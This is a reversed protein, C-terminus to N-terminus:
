TGTTPIKAPAGHVRARGPRHDGREFHSRNKSSAADLSWGVVGGTALLQDPRRGGWLAVRAVRLETGPIDVSETDLEQLQNQSSQRM